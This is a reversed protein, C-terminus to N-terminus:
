PLALVASRVTAKVLYRSAQPQLQYSSLTWIEKPELGNNLASVFRNLAKADVAELQLVTTRSTQDHTMSSLSVEDMEAQELSAFVNNWPYNLKTRIAAAAISLEKERPSMARTQAEQQKVQRRLQAIKEEMLVTESRALWWQYSPLLVAALALVALAAALTVPRRRPAFELDLKM